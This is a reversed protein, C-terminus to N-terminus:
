SETIEKLAMKLASAIVQHMDYYRFEALRGGFIVKTENQAIAKYKNFLETNTNDNVPYYPENDKNHEVPFETTVITHPVNTPHFYKHEITRTFPIEIDTYNIVAYPQNNKKQIKKHEFVLSRYDLEGHKYNYFEDIKGTYIIKKSISNWYDRNEFFNIGKKVEIGNLLNEILPNYGGMPIGQYKDNYYNNDFTFRLPLRKIIFSPLNNSNRGWQKESYGKILKEYIDRGVTSVVHKEFGQLSDLNENCIQSTIIRKAEDPTSVNWLQHFTNMNLPLNYFQNKYFAVPSHIFNNFKTFHNVFNWIKEDNTHFIHAGYHHVIIGDINECYINGGIHKRKEIVLCKKGNKNMQHAFVSGFLGSGVILYDYAFYNSSM